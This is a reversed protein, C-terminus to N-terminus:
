TQVCQKRAFLTSRAYSKMQIIININDPFINGNFYTNCGTNCGMGVFASFLAFTNNWICYTSLWSNQMQTFM